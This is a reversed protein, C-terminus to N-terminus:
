LQFRISTEQTIPTSETLSQQPIPVSYTAWSLETGM